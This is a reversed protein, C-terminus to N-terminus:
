LRRKIKCSSRKERKRKSIIHTELYNHKQRVGVVDDMVMACQYSEACRSDVGPSVNMASENMREKNINSTEKTHMVLELQHANGHRM